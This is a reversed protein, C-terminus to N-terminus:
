LANAGARFPGAADRRGRLDTPRDTQRDTSADVVAVTREKNGNGRGNGYAAGAGDVRRDTLALSLPLCAPLGM